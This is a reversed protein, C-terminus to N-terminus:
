RYNAMNCRELAEVPMIADLRSNQAIPIGNGFISLHGQM